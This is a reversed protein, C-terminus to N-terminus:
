DGPDQRREDYWLGLGERSRVANPGRVALSLLMRMGNAHVLFGAGVTRWTQQREVLETTFGHRHLATAATLGAVGGGVVLISEAGAMDIIATRSLAAAGPCRDHRESLRAGKISSTRLSDRASRDLLIIMGM